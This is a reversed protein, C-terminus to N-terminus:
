PEINSKQHPGLSKLDIPTSYPKFGLLGVDQLLYFNTYKRQNLSIGYKSIALEFGLFYEPCTIIMLNKKKKKKCFWLPNYYTISIGHYLSYELTLQTESNNNKERFKFKFAYKM